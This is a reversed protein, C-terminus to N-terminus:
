VARLYDTVGYTQSRGTRLDPQLGLLDTPSEHYVVVSVAPRTHGERPAAGVFHSAEDSLRSPRGM